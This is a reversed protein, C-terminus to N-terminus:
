GVGNSHTRGSFYIRMERSGRYQTYITRSPDKDYIMVNAHLAFSAVIASGAFGKGIIGINM